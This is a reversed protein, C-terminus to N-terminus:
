LINAKYSKYIERFMYLQTQTLECFRLFDCSHDM